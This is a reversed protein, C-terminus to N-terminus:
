DLLIDERHQMKIKYIWKSTVMSTGKPRPVIEWVDNKMISQYEEMMAHKWVHQDGEEKYSSPEFDITHSLLEM